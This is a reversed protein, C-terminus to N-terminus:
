KLSTEQPPKSKKSAYIQQNMRNQRIIKATELLGYEIFIKEFPSFALFRIRTLRFISHKVKRSFNLVFRAVNLISRHKKMANKVRKKFTPVPESHSFPNKKEKPPAVVTESFSKPYFHDMQNVCKQLKGLFAFCKQERFEATSKEDYNLLEVQNLIDIAFEIQGYLVAILSLKHTAIYLENPDQISEKLQSFNKFFLADGFATFSKGRISVPGRFPSLKGLHTFEVFQFNHSSLLNFIDTFLKQDKYLPFFEIECRVALVNSSLLDEAGQLIEYESGQTDLTLLDPKPINTGDKSMLTDLTIVELDRVELCESGEGWVYDHSHSFYYYDKFEDNTPINSSTFPDKNIHFSAKGNKGGMCYPLVISEAFVNEVRKETYEISDKDADYMVLVTEKLFDPPIYTGYSGNRGGIHHIILRKELDMAKLDM